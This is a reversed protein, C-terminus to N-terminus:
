SPPTVPAGATVPFPDSKPGLGVENEAAVRVFDGSEGITATGAGLLAPEAEEEDIYFRYSTIESGGSNEPDTFTIDVFGLSSAASTVAPKGPVTPVRTAGVYLSVFEGGVFPAAAVSGLRAM